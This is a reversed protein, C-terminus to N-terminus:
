KPSFLLETLYETTDEVFKNFCDLTVWINKSIDEESRNNFQEHLISTKIEEVEKKHAVEYLSYSNSKELLAWIEETNKYNLYMAYDVGYFEKHYLGLLDQSSVGVSIDNETKLRFPTWIKISNQMDTLIHAIYGYVFDINEANKSTDLYKMINEFWEDNNTIRGWKQEGVCLHSAKKMDSDYNARFHVCDPAISGLLFDSKNKIADTKGAVEYAIILHTMPFPM